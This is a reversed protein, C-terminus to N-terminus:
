KTILLKNLKGLTEPNSPRTTNMEKVTGDPNLLIFRPIQDIKYDKEMTTDTVCWQTGKMSYGKLAGMWRWSPGTMGKSQHDISISIVKVKSTDLKAIMAELLPYEKRCPYCWSAWIDLYIYKGKYEKLSHEKNATDILIYKYIDPVLRKLDSQAKLHLAPLLGVFVCLMTKIKM